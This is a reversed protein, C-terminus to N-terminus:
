GRYSPDDQDEYGDDMDELFDHFQEEKRQKRKGHSRNSVIFFAILGVVIFGATVALSLMDSIDELM